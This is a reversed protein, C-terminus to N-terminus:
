ADCPAMKKFTDYFRPLSFQEQIRQYGREGWQRRDAPTMEYYSRMAIALAEHNGPDVVIGTDGIVEPIGGTRVGIVPLRATMAESLARGFSEKVRTTLLFVDLAPLYRWGEDLFGTFYVRSDVGLRISLSKLSSALTGHGAIVLVANACVPSIMAFARILTEHDKNAELRGFTGFVFADVPLTMKERADMRSYFGSELLPMDIANYLTLLRTPSVAGGLAARMAERMADSVGAFYMNRRALLRIMWRRMKSKLAELDHAVFILQPIRVWKEIWMFLYFPKYRHCIVTHFQKRRALRWMRWLIGLKLGRVAAKSQNLFIVEDADTRARILADPAGCLYAVTVHCRSREFFGAYQNCVDIFQTAHHHCFILINKKNM